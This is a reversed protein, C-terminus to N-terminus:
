VCAARGLLLLFLLGALPKLALSAQMSCIRVLLAHQSQPAHPSVPVHLGRLQLLHLVPLLCPLCPGQYCPALQMRCSWVVAPLVKVMGWRSPTLDLPRCPRFNQCPRGQGQSFLEPARGRPAGAFANFYQIASAKEPAAGECIGLPLLFGTPIQQPQRSM